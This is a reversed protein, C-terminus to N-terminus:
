HTAGNCLFVILTKKESYIFKEIFKLRPETPPMNSSAHKTNGYGCRGKIRSKLCQLYNIKVRYVINKMYCWLFLDLIQRGLPDLSQNVEASRDGLWRETWTIGLMTASIHRCM